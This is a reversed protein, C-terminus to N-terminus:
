PVGCLKFFKILEQKMQFYINQAKWPYFTIDIKDLQNLTATIAQIYEISDHQEQLKEISDNVWREINFELTNKDIDISWDQIEEILKEMKELDILNESFLGNLELNIAEKTIISLSQPVPINLQKLFNIVVYNATYLQKINNEVEENTPQLIKQIVKRQEDKFLYWLSYSNTKFYNDILRIIDVVNAQNFATKIEQAM